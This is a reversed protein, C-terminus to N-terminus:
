REIKKWAESQLKHWERWAQAEARNLDCTQALAVTGAFPLGILDIREGTPVEAVAASGEGSSSISRSPGSSIGPNGPCAAKGPGRMLVTGADRYIIRVTEDHKIRLKDTIGSTLADAKRKIELAKAAIRAGEDAKGKDYADELKGNHWRIVLFIVLAAALAYWVWGPIRALFGKVGALKAGIMAMGIM